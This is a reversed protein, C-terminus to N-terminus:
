IARILSDFVEERTKRELECTPNSLAYSNVQITHGKSIREAFEWIGNALNYNDEKLLIDKLLAMMEELTRHQFIIRGNTKEIHSEFRDRHWNVKWGHWRKTLQVLLGPADDALWYDLTKEVVDIHFGGQLFTSTWEPITIEKQGFSRDFLDVMQPGCYLFDETIGDLPFLLTCDDIFRVSAIISLWDKEKPPCFIVSEEETQNLVKTKPYGVYDALDAIGEYAWKIEWGSWVQALLQLYVRRLPIDQKIDEGGYLIFVKKDLDIIAGGEAWVADLWGTESDVKNQIQIFHLAHEPGWFLERPLSNACWHSYYLDYTSNKFIILNARQGM